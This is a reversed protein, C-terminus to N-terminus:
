LFGGLIPPSITNGSMPNEDDDDDYKKIKEEPEWYKYAEDECDSCELCPTRYTPYHWYKCTICEKKVEKDKM